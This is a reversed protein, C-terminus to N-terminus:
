FQPPVWDPIGREALQKEYGEVLQRVDGITDAQIARAYDLEDDSYEIPGLAELERRLLQRQVPRGAGPKEAGDRGNARGPIRKM